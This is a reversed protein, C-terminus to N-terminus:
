FNGVQFSISAAAGRLRTGRHSADAIARYGIGADLRGWGAVRFLVDAQPEAVFFGQRYGVTYPGPLTGCLPSRGPM